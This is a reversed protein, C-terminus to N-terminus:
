HPQVFSVGRFTDREHYVFKQIFKSANQDCNKYIWIHLFFFPFFLDNTFFHYILIAHFNLLYRGKKFM